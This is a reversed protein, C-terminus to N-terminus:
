RLDTVVARLDAAATKLEGYSTRLGDRAAVLVPLVPTSGPYSAPTQALVTAPVGGSAGQAATVQAELDAFSARAATVVVGGRAATDIAGEIAPEDGALTAEIGDTADGAIALHTQPAVVAFVRYERVMSTADQWVATCTTDAPAKQVLADIGATTTTLTTTLASRDAPTLAAAAAVDGTLTGLDAVRAALAAELQQQAVAVTAPTCTPHSATGAGATAATAAPASLVVTGVVVSLSATVLSLRGALHRTARRQPTRHM